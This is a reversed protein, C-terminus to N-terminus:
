RGRRYSSRYGGELEIMERVTLPPDREFRAAAYELELRRQVSPWVPEPPDIIGRRLTWVEMFTVTM